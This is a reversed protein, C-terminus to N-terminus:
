KASPNEPCGLGGRMHAMMLEQLAYENGRAAAM